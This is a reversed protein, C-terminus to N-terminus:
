PFLGCWSARSCRRPCAFEYRLRAVDDGQPEDSGAPPKPQLLAPCLQRTGDENLPFSLQFLNPPYDRVKLMEVPKQAAM